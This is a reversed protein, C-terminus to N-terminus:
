LSAWRSYVAARPRPIARDRAGSMAFAITVCASIWLTSHLWITGSFMAEVLHFFFLLASFKALVASRKDRIVTFACVLARGIGLLLIFGGFIGFAMLAELMLNHPYIRLFRETVTDGFVPHELFITWASSMVGSRQLNSQQAGYDESSFRQLVSGVVDIGVIQAVGVALVLGCGAIFGLRIVRRFNSQALIYFLITMAAALLPGRSKTLAVIVVLLGMIVPSALRVLRPMSGFFLLLIMMFAISTNALSIPNLKELTLREVSAVASALSRANLAAGALFILMLWVGVHAFARDSLNSVHVAFLVAPILSSFILILYMRTPEFYTPDGSIYVDEYARLGYLLLIAVIPAIALALHPLPRYRAFFMLFLIGFATAARLLVAPMATEGVGIGSLMPAVAAYGFLALAFLLTTFGFFRGAAAMRLPPAARRPEPTRRM